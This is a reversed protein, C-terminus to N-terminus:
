QHGATRKGELNKGVEWGSEVECQVNTADWPKGDDDGDSEPRGVLRVSARAEFMHTRLQLAVTVATEFAVKLEVSAVSGMVRAIPGHADLIRKIGCIGVWIRAKLLRM